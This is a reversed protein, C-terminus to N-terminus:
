GRAYQVAVYSMLLLIWIWALLAMAPALNPRKNNEFASSEAESNPFIALAFAVGSVLFPLYAKVPFFEARLIHSMGPNLMIAIAVLLLVLALLPFFSSRNGRGFSVGYERLHWPLLFLTPGALMILAITIRM